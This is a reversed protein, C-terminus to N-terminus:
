LLRWRRFLWVEFVALGGGYRITTVTTSSM